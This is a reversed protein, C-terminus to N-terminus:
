VKTTLEVGARKLKAAFGLVRHSQIIVFAQIIIGCTNAGQQGLNILNGVISIYGLILGLYVAWIQKYAAGFGCAGWVVALGLILLGIMEAADQPLGRAVGIAEGNKMIVLGLLLSVISFFIWVGALGHIERRFRRILDTDINAILRDDDSDLFEGCFRCKRASRPIQEGCMPCARRRPGRPPSQVPEDEFDFDYTDDDAELDDADWIEDDTPM